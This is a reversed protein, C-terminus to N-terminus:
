NLYLSYNYTYVKNVKAEKKQVAAQHVMEFANLKELEIDINAM